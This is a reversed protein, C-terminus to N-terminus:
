IFVKDIGLIDFPIKSLNEIIIEHTEIEDLLLRYEISTM